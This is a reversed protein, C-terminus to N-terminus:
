LLEPLQRVSSLCNITKIYFYIDLYRYILRPVKSYSAGASSLNSEIKTKVRKIVAPCAATANTFMCVINTDLAFHKDLETNTSIRGTASVSTQRQRNRACFLCAGAELM